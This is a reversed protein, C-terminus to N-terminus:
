PMSYILALLTDLVPSSRSPSAAFHHSVVFHVPTGDGTEEGHHACRPQNEKNLERLQWSSLFQLEFLLPHLLAHLTYTLVRDTEHYKWIDGINAAHYFYCSIYSIRFSQSKSRTQQRGHKSETQARCSWHQAYQEWDRMKALSFRYIIIIKQFNEQNCTKTANSGGGQLNVM